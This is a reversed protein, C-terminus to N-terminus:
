VFKKQRGEKQCAHGYLFAISKVPKLALVSSAKMILDPTSIRTDRILCVFMTLTGKLLVMM